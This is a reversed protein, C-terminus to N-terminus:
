WDEGEVYDTDTESESWNEPYDDRESHVKRLRVSAGTSIPTVNLEQCRRVYAEKWIEPDPASYSQEGMRTVHSWAAGQAIKWCAYYLLANHDNTNTVERRAISLFTTFKSDSLADENLGLLDRAEGATPTTTETSM